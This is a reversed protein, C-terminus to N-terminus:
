FSLAAPMSKRLSTSVMPYGKAEDIAEKRFRLVPLVPCSDLVVPFSSSSSESWLVVLM